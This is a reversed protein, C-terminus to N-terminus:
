AVKEAELRQIVSQYQTKIKAQGNIQTLTQVVRNKEKIELEKKLKFQALNISCGYKEKLLHYSLYVWHVHNMLADFSHVGAHQLGLNSKLDRHFLEIEWRMRYCLLISKIDCDLRSSALFKLKEDSSRKSSVIKVQRRIDKLYGLQQKVEHERQNKKKGRYSVIRISKSPRRGDGFYNDVREWNKINRSMTRHSKLSMIFDWDRSLIVNELMKCDYGSDAVVVIEEASFPLNITRLFTAVKELETQYEMERSKCEEKTYFAIPALPVFQGAVLLGINTWQHGKVWGDGHNFRQGNQVHRSSRSHLSSDIILMVTWKQDAVIKKRLRMLKDLRRRSARNLTAKSEKTDGYLLNSFSSADKQSIEAANSQTHKASALMISLMYWSLINIKRSKIELNELSNSIFKIDAQHM